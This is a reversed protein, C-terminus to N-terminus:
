QGEVRTLNLSFGQFSRADGDSVVVRVAFSGTLDAPIEWELRGSGADITMGSPATELSFTLEDGDPDDAEVMYVYTGDNVKPPPFSLVEPPRNLIIVPLSRKIEGKQKGDFPTIGVTVLDGKEYGTTDLEGTVAEVIVQDNRKWEYDLMVLDDDPDSTAVEAKIWTGPFIAGPSLKVSEVKPPRNEVTAVVPDPTAPTAPPPDISPQTSPATQAPPEPAPSPSKEEGCAGVLLALFLLLVPHKWGSLKLAM